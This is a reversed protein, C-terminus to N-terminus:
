GLKEDSNRNASLIEGERGGIKLLIYFYFYNQFGVSALKRSMSFHKRDPYQPTTTVQWSKGHQAIIAYQEPRSWRAPLQITDKTESLLHEIKHSSLKRIM